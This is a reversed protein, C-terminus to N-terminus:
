IVASGVSAALWAAPLFGAFSVLAFKAGHMPLLACAGTLMVNPVGALRLGLVYWCGGRAFAQEIRHLREGLRQRVRERLSRRTLLLLAQSGFAGGAAVAAAAVEADLMAGATLSVPVIIGPVGVAMLLATLLFTAAAVAALSGGSRWAM